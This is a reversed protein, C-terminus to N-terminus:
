ERVQLVLLWVLAHVGGYSIGWVGISDRVINPLIGAYTICTSLGIQQWLSIEQRPSGESEGFYRDDSILVALGAKAFVEALSVFVNM